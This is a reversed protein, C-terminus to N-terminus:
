SLNQIIAMETDHIMKLIAAIFATVDDMNKELKPVAAALVAVPTELV